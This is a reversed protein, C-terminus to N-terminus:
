FHLTLLYFHICYPIHSVVAKKRGCNDTKQLISTYFNYLNLKGQLSIKHYSDLIHFTFATRLRKFSAPYWGIHLLQCYNKVWESSETCM